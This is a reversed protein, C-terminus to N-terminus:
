APAVGPVTFRMAKAQEKMAAFTLADVSTLFPKVVREVPRGAARIQPLAALSPVVRYPAATTKTIRQQAQALDSLPLIAATALTVGLTARRIGRRPVIANHM